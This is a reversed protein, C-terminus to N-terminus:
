DNAQYITRVQRALLGKVTEEFLYYLSHTVFYAYISGLLRPADKPPSTWFHMPYPKFRV